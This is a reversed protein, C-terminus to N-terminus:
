APAGGNTSAKPDRILELIQHDLARLFDKQPLLRFICLIGVLSQGLRLPVYALVGHSDPTGRLILEGREAALGIPGVGLSLPGLRAAQEGVRRALTLTRGDAGLEYVGLDESGVINVCIEEIARFLGARDRQEQLQHAVVYLTTLEFSQRTIRDLHEACLQHQRELSVFRDELAGKEEDLASLRERLRDLGSPDM